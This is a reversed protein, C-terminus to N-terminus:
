EWKWGLTYHNSAQAAPAALEAPLLQQSTPTICITLAETQELNTADEGHHACLAHKACQLRECARSPMVTVNM